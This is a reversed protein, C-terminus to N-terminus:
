QRTKKVIHIINGWGSDNQKIFAKQFSTVYKYTRMDLYSKYDLKGHNIPLVKHSPTTITRINYKINALSNNLFTSLDTGVSGFSGKGDWKRSVSLSCKGDKQYLITPSVKASIMLLTKFCMWKLFLCWGMLESIKILHFIGM